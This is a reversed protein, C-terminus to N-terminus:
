IHILSLRPHPDTIMLPFTPISVGNREIPFRWIHFLEPKGYYYDYDPSAHGTDPFFVKVQHGQAHLRKIITELAVFSGTGWPGTVTMLIKM